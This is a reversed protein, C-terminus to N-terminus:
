RSRRRPRRVTAQGTGGRQPASPLTGLRREQSPWEEPDFTNGRCKDALLLTTRSPYETAGFRAACPAEDDASRDHVLRVTFRFRCAQGVASELEIRGGDRVDQMSGSSTSSAAESRRWRM